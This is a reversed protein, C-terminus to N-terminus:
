FRKARNMEISVMYPAFRSLKTFEAAYEDVNKSDQKLNIFKQEMGNKGADPFFKTMFSASFTEWYVPKSM